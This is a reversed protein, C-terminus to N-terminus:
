KLIMFFPMAGFLVSLSVYIEKLARIARLGDEKYMFYKKNNMVSAVIYGVINVIALFSVTDLAYKKLITDTDLKLVNLSLFMILAIIGNLIVSIILFMYVFNALNQPNEQNILVKDM